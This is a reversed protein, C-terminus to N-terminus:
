KLLVLDHRPLVFIVLVEPFVQECSRLFKSSGMALVTVRQKRPGIPSIVLNQENWSRQHTEFDPM